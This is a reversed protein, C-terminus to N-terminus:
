FSTLGLHLFLVQDQDSSKPAWQCQWGIGGNVCLVTELQVSGEIMPGQLGMLRRCAYTNGSVRVVDDALYDPVYSWLQIYSKAEPHCREGIPAACDSLTRAGTIAFYETPPKSGDPISHSSTPAFDLGWISGGANLVYGPKDKEPFFQDLRSHNGLDSFRCPKQAGVDEPYISSSSPAHPENHHVPGLHLIISKIQPLYERAERAVM